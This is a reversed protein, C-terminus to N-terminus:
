FIPFDFIRPPPFTSTSYPISETPPIIVLSSIGPHVGAPTQFIAWRFQPPSNKRLTLHTNRQTSSLSGGFRLNSPTNQFLIPSPITRTFLTFFAFPSPHAWFGVTPFDAAVGRFWCLFSFFCGWGGRRLGWFFFVLVVGLGLVVCGLFGLLRGGGWAAGRALPCPIFLGV